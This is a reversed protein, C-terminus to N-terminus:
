GFEIKSPGGSLTCGEGGKVETSRGQIYFASILVFICYERKLDLLASSSKVKKLLQLKM